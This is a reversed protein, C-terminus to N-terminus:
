RFCWCRRHLFHSFAAQVDAKRSSTYTPLSNVGLCLLPVQMAVAIFARSPTLYEQAYHRCRCPRQLNLRCHFSLNFNLARKPLYNKDSCTASLTAWEPWRPMKNEKKRASIENPKIATSSNSSMVRALWNITFIKARFIDFHINKCLKWIFLFIWRLINHQM